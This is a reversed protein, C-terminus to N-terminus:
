RPNITNRQALEGSNSSVNDQLTCFEEKESKGDNIIMDM